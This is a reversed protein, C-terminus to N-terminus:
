KGKIPVSMTKKYAERFKKFDSALIGIFEISNIKKNKKDIKHYKLLYDNKFLDKLPNTLRYCSCFVGKYLITGGDTRDLCNAPCLDCSM